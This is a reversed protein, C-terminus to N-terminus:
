LVSAANGFALGHEVGLKAFAADQGDFAHAVIGAGLHVERAVAAFPQRQRNSFQRHHLLWCGLDGWILVSRGLPNPTSVHSGNM